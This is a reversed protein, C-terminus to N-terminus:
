WALWLTIPTNNLRIPPYKESRESRFFSRTKVSKKLAKTQKRAEKKKGVGIARYKTKPVFM